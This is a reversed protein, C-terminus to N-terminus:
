GLQGIVWRHERFLVADPRLHQCGCGGRGCPSSTKLDPRHEDHSHGCKCRLGWALDRRWEGPQEDTVQQLLSPDLFHDTM